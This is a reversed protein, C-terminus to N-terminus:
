PAYDGRTNEPLNLIPKQNFPNAKVVLGNPAGKPIPLNVHILNVQVGSPKDGNVRIDLTPEDFWGTFIPTSLGYGTQGGGGRNWGNNGQNGLSGALANEILRRTMEPTVAKTEPNVNPTTEQQTTIGVPSKTGATVLGLTATKSEGPKLTQMKALRDSYSLGCDHLTYKTRNTITVDATKADIMKVKADIGGGLSEVVPIDFSRKDWLRVATNKLTTTKDHAITLDTVANGYSASQFESPTVDAYPTATDTAGFGIDYSARRPSYLTMEAYGGLTETNAFGEYVVASNVTLMGGKINAAVVYSLTSFGLILLPATVWSLERKDMKKLILYSVPVLLLIYLGIFGGVLPLAPANTAQKGALADALLAGGNYGYDGGGHSAQLQTAPSVFRNGTRLVDRWFPAAGQWGRMEPTLADFALYVVKGSGYAKSAVLPTGNESFLTEAGSKLAGTIAGATGSVPAHYRDTLADLAVTRPSGPAIPLLETLFPHRLRTLDSGGSIVLLGGQRVYMKIANLQSEALTDFPLDGLVIADMADYGQAMGPLTRPDTTYVLLSANENLASQKQPTGPTQPTQYSQVSNPDIGRHLLGLKKRLLFNMGNGDRTLALVNFANADAGYAVKVNKEAIKRGDVLLQIAINASQGGGRYMASPDSNRFDLTFRQIENLNGDTLPVRRTYTTNESGNRVTVQIQGVGRVGQGSLFVTLPTFSGSRFKTTEPKFGYGVMADIQAARAPLISAAVLTACVALLSRMVSSLPSKM